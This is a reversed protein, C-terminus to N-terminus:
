EEGGGARQRPPAPAQELPLTANAGRPAWAGGGKAKLWRVTGETRKEREQSWALDAEDRTDTSVLVVVRGAGTRGAGGRRQVARIESPVAEYYVVLDVGPIHLGEEGVSTAIIVRPEGKSFGELVQAQREPTMGEGGADARQGIFVGCALGPGLPPARSLAAELARASDRYQTFVLARAGPKERFLSRLQVVVAEVKPHSTSALGRAMRRAEAIASLGSLAREARPADAGQGMRELHGSLPAAGQAELLELAHVLIIAEAHVKLLEFYAGRDQPRRRRLADGAALVERKALLRAPTRPLLGAATLADARPQLEKALIEQIHRMPGTLEVEVVEVDLTSVYPRVDPDDRTRADVRRLGLADMVASARRRDSGPSATLALVLAGPRDRRLAAAVEVYAYAGVARHAEDVVLLSCRALGLRGAEIEARVTEPTSVVLWATRLAEARAARATSGTVLAVRASAEDSFVARFGEFLQRALPRTPALVLVFGGAQRLREAAVLYAIATKGLGTPLVILTPASLAERAMAAQYARAEVTLPRLLPHVVFGAAEEFADPAVPKRPGGTLQAQGGGM